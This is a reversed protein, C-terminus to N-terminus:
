KRNGESFLFLLVYSPRYCVYMKCRVNVATATIVTCVRILASDFLKQNCDM